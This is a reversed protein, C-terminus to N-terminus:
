SRCFWHLWAFLREAVWRRLARVDQSKSRNERNPVIMKSEINRMLRTRTSFAAPSRRMVLKSKHPSASDITVALPVCNGATITM